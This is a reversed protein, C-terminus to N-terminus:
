IRFNEPEGVLSARTKPEKPPDIVGGGRGRVARGFSGTKVVAGLSLIGEKEMTTRSRENM